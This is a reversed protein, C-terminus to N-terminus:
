CLLFAGGLVTLVLGKVPTCFTRPGGGHTGIGVRLELSTTWCGTTLFLGLLAVVVSGVVLGTLGVGVLCIALSERM